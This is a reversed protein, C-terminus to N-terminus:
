EGGENSGTDGGSDRSPRRAAAGADAKAAAEVARRLVKYEKKEMSFAKAESNLVKELMIRKRKVEDPEITVVDPGKQGKIEVGLLPALEPFAEAIDEKFSM